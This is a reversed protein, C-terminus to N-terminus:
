FPCVEKWEEVPLLVQKKEEKHPMGCSSRSAERGGGAFIPSPPSAFLIVPSVAFPTFITAQAACGHATIFLVEPPLYSGPACRATLAPAPTRPGYKLDWRIVLISVTASWVKDIMIASPPEM